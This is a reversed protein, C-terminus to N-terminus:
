FLSRGIDYNLGLQLFWNRSETIVTSGTSSRDWSLRIEPALSVRDEVYYTCRSNLFISQERGVPAQESVRVYDVRGHLSNTWAM